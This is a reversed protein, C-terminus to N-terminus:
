IQLLSMQEAMERDLDDALVKVDNATMGLGSLSEPNFRLLNTGISSMGKLTCILHAVEVCRVLALHEGRYSATQHHYRIAARTADPFGWQVGVAEGLETHAFGLIGKEIEVLTTGDKISQIVRVFSEHFHQDILIIGIDHLLGALFMDEFNHFRLRMALMRACLGSAVLHKWLDTRRYRGISESKRFLDAVTATIALNRIQKLGLYAIAQQLNTIKHRVGYASSNVCRIVRASLAADIEMVEKLDAASSRPDEVVRMINVAVQPLTSIEQIRRAARQVHEAISSAMTIPTMTDKGALCIKEVVRVQYGGNIYRVLHLKGSGHRACKALWSDRDAQKVKM